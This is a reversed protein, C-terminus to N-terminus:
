EAPWHRAPDGASDEPHDDDSPNSGSPTIWRWNGVAGEVRYGSYTILYHHWQCVRCCTALSAPTGNRYDPYHHIELGHRVACGPVVCQRDREELATRLRAPISRGAHAVARIDEGDTVLVKLWCDEALWAATAAPVAGIGLIECVEGDQVWGRKLVTYDVRLHDV